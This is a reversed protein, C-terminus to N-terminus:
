SGGSTRPSARRREGLLVLLVPAGALLYCHYTIVRWVAIAAGATAQGVLPVLLVGTGLEAAGAGGPLLSLQGAAMALMQVLFTWSWAVEAGLGTLALYLLSYRLLWHGACCAMVLALTPRPLALTALLAQRFQLLRRALRRGRRRSPGKGRRGRLLLPLRHVLLGSGALLVGLAAIAGGLLGPHPWPVATWLSGLALVVLAVLFFTLDCCQDIMFVASARAPRLGRLALLALLTAPGGSGGPTACIACETAMVMAFARRQGLRGARGALLLRLRWANLQWGLAVMALMVALWGPPFDGLAALGERGGILLPVVLGLVLALALWGGRGPLRSPSM